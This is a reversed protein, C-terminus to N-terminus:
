GNLGWHPWPWACQLHCVLLPQTVPLMSEAGNNQQGYAGKACEYPRDYAVISLPLGLMHSIYDRVQLNYEVGTAMMRLVRRLALFSLLLVLPCWQNSKGTTTYVGLQWGCPQRRMLCYVAEKVSIPM